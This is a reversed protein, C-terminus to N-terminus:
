GKKAPDGPQAQTVRFGQGTTVVAVTYGGASTPVFVATYAHAIPATSIIQGSGTVTQAPIQAPDTLALQAAFQSTCFAGTAANWQERTVGKTRLTARVFSEAFSIVAAPAPTSTSPDASVATSPEVPSPVGVATAGTSTASRAASTAATASLLAAHGGDHRPVVRVAVAVVAVLLVATVTGAVARSRGRSSHAPIQEPPPAPVREGDTVHDMNLYAEREDAPEQDSM